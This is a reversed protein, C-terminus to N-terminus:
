HKVKTMMMLIEVCFLIWHELHMKIPFKGSITGSLKYFNNKQIDHTFNWTTQGICLMHFFTLYVIETWLIKKM